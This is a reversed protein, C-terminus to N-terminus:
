YFPVLASLESVNSAYGWRTRFLILHCCFEQFVISIRMTVVSIYTGDLFVAASTVVVLVIEVTSLTFPKTFLKESFSANSEMSHGIRINRGSSVLSDRM